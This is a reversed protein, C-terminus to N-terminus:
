CESHSKMNTTQEIQAEHYYRLISPVPPIIGVKYFLLDLRLLALCDVLVISIYAVQSTPLGSRMISFECDANDRTLLQWIILKMLALVLDAKIEETNGQSLMTIVCVICHIFM